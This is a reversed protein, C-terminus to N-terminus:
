RFKGQLSESTPLGSIGSIVCECENSENRFKLRRSGDIISLEYLTCILLCCEQHNRFCSGDLLKKEGEWYRFCSYNVTRSTLSTAEGAHESDYLPVTQGYNGGSNCIKSSAVCFGYSCSGQVENGKEFQQTM